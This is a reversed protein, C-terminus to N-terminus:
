KEILSIDKREGVIKERQAKTIYKRYLKWKDGISDSVYLEGSTKDDNDWVINTIVMNSLKTQSYLEFKAGLLTAQIPGELFVCEVSEKGLIDEFNETKIDMGTVHFHDFPHNWVVPKDRLICNDLQAFFEIDEKPFEASPVFTVGIKDELKKAATWLEIASELHEADFSSSEIVSGTIKKGDIKITGYYLGEFLHIAVLADAVTNAKQPNLTYLVKSDVHNDAIIFKMQLAPFDISEFLVADFSDYPKRMISITVREGKATEFEFQKAAPFPEPYLYSEKINAPGDLPNGIMNEFPIQKERDGIKARTVPVRLQMRYIYEAWKDQSINKLKTEVFNKDIDVKLVMSDSAHEPRPGAVYEGDKNQYYMFTSPLEESLVDLVEKPIESANDPSEDFTDYFDAIM